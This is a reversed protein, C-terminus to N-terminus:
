QDGRVPTDVFRGLVFAEAAELGVSSGRYRALSEVAKSSRPHPWSRIESGYAELAMIKKELTASVDVFWNPTFVNDPSQVQWDTSSPVEFFLLRKVAQGPYPRCATVVARHVVAHDINLDSAHHTYIVEPRYKELYMEITQVIDLLDVSDLRNDPLNNLDLSSTGLIEKAHNAERSLRELEEKRRVTDREEDRSTIGEAIIVVRVEDGALVHKAITAGCGLVEDDPHAAVVLVNM